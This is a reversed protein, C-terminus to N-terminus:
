VVHNNPSFTLPRLDPQFQRAAHSYRGAGSHAAVESAPALTRARARHSQSHEAAARAPNSSCLANSQATLLAPRRQRHARRARPSDHSAIAAQSGVASTRRCAQASPGHDPLGTRPLACVSRRHCHTGLAAAAGDRQSQAATRNTLRRWCGGATASRASELGSCGSAESSLARGLANSQCYRALQPMSAVDPAHRATSGPARACRLMPPTAPPSSLRLPWVYM